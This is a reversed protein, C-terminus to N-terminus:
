RTSAWRKHKPLPPSKRLRQTRPRSRLLSSNASPRGSRMPQVSRPLSPRDNGEEFAPAVPQVAQAILQVYEQSGAASLHTGDGDFLEDHNASYGFWDVVRVNDYREAASSFVQNNAAIWPQPCRNNVFVAIRKEGVIGMLEDINADTVAGNTGLAFVAVRGALGQDVMGRYVEIGAVFQRSKAADITGHASTQRFPEVARLSVSNGIMTIDYTGAVSNDEGEPAPRAMQPM